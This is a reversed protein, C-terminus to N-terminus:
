NVTIQLEDSAGLGDTDVASVWIKYNGKKLAKNYNPESSLAEQDVIEGLHNKILFAFNEIKFYIQKMKLKNM